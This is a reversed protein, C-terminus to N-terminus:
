FFEQIREISNKSPIKKLSYKRINGGGQDPEQVETLGNLLPGQVQQVVRVKEVGVDGELYWERLSGIKPPTSYVTSYIYLPSNSCQVLYKNM